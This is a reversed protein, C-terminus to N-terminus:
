RGDATSILFRYAADVSNSQRSGPVTARFRGAQCGMKVQPTRSTPPLRVYLKEPTDTGIETLDIQNGAPDRFRAAVIATLSVVPYPEMVVVAGNREARRIVHEIGKTMFIWADNDHPRNDRHSKVRKDLLVRPAPNAVAKEVTKGVNLM